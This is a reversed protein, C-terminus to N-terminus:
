RNFFYLALYILAIIAALVAYSGALWFGKRKKKTFATVRLIEIIIIGLLFLYIYTFYKNIYLKEFFESFPHNKYWPRAELRKFYDEDIRFPSQEPYELFRGINIRKLDYGDNVRLDFQIYTYDQATFSIGDSYDSEDLMSNYHIEQRSVTSTDTGDEWDILQSDSITGDTAIIGSFATEKKNASWELFITDEEQWLYYGFSAGPVFSIEMCGTLMMIALFLILALAIRTKLTAKKM